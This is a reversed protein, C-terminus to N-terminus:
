QRLREAREALDALFAILEDATQDCTFPSVWIELGVEAALTAALELRDPDGGTVRVANCHLDDHIIQLERKVTVPDFSERGNVGAAIFGTDYTIGKVRM